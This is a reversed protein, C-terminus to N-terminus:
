RRKMNNAMRMLKKGGGTTMMRMMKSTEEFQKVLRNVEV